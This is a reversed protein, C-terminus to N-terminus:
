GSMKEVKTNVKKDVITIIKEHSIGLLSEELVLKLMMRQVFGKM